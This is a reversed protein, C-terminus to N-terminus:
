MVRVMMEGIERDKEFAKLKLLELKRKKTEEFKLKIEEMLTQKNEYDQRVRKMHSENFDVTKRLREAVQFSKNKSHTYKLKRQENLNYKIIEEKKKMEVLKELQINNNTFEAEQLKKKRQNDKKLQLIQRM